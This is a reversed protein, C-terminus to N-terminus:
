LKSIKIKKLIAKKHSKISIVHKGKQIEVAADFVKDSLFKHQIKQHDLYLDFNELDIHHIGIMITEDKTMNLSYHYLHHEKMLLNPFVFDKMDRNHISFDTKIINGKDDVCTVDDSARFIAEDKEKIKKLNKVQYDFAIAYTEFADRQCLHNIVDEHYIVKEFIIAELFQNFTEKIEVDRLTEDENLCRDWNEPKKFSVFSNYTEMKKYSWFCWSIDLSEYMKFAASYWLFNHEGGEGMWLPVKWAESQKMYPAISEIDFDSWYKHFQLLIKDDPKDNFISFDTSWHVGELSIIHNPDIAKIKEIIRRYLPMVKHDYMSFWKPLPENLLDYGLLYKEDKYRRALEEWVFVTQDQYIEHIYLEPLDSKSNDINAGTQGGPAAHLDLIVFIEHKNCWTFLHDVHKFGEAKMKLTSEDDSSEFLVEYDIPLRVSNFGQEKIYIIDAETIFRERFTEWFVKSDEKGLLRETWAYFARPRDIKKISKFMYGEPLLWGNLGVGRLLFPNGELDLLKQDKM